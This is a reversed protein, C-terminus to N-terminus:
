LRAPDACANFRCRYPGRGTGHRRADQDEGPLVRRDHLAPQRAVDALQGLLEDRLTMVHVDEGAPAPVQAGVLHPVPHLHVAHALGVEGLVVEVGEDRPDVVHVLVHAGGARLQDLLDAGLEHVRVVPEDRAGGSLQGAVGAHRPEDRDVRGLVAAVLAPDVLVRLAVDM